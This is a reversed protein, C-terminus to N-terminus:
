IYTYLYKTKHFIFYKFKNGSRQKKENIFSLSPLEGVLQVFFMLTVAELQPFGGVTGLSLWLRAEGFLAAPLPQRPATQNLLYILDDGLWFVSPKIEPRVLTCAVYGLALHQGWTERQHMWRPIFTRRQTKSVFLMSFTSTHFFLLYIFVNFDYSHTHMPHILYAHKTHEPLFSCKGDTSTIWANESVKQKNDVPPQSDCVKRNKFLYRCSQMCPFFVM